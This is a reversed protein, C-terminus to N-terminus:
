STTSGTFVAPMRTGDLDVHLRVDGRAETPITFAYSATTTAGPRLTGVLDGAPVDYSPDALSGRGPGYVATVVATGVDVSADSDNTVVIKFLTVPGNAAGPGLGVVQRDRIDVVEVRVGDPYTAADALSAPAVSLAPDVRVGAREVPGITRPAPADPQVADDTGPADDTGAEPAAAAAADSAAPDGTPQAAAGGGGALAAWTGGAALVLGAVGLPIAHKPLGRRAAGTDETEDRLPVRRRVM